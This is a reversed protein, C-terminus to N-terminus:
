VNHKSAHVPYGTQLINIKDGEVTVIYEDPTRSNEFTALFDNDCIYM